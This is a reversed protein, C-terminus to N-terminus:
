QKEMERGVALGTLFSAKVSMRFVQAFHV